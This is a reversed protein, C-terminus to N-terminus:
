PDLQSDSCGYADVLEGAPTHPCVDVLDPVGDDDADGGREYYWIPEFDHHAESVTYFGLNDAHWAIAEGQPESHLTILCPDDLFADALATGPARYWINAYDSGGDNRAIIWRGDPSLDAATIWSLGTGTPLTVVYEMTNVSATSQPYPARYVKNPYIRKTIIYIDRNTDVFLAETDKQSPAQAGSPYQLTIIDVDSLTTSVPAQNPDVFPEPARKVVITTRVSNNDGIDGFYIYTTGPIPGPGVAIDETDRVSGSGFAYTGLLTGDVNIAYVVNGGGSDNHTWLVGPNRRSAALGSAEIVDSALLYGAETGPLFPDSGAQCSGHDCTEAGNCFDGDDCDEDGLCTVCADSDEDCSQGPCPDSGAQCSGGVCTEAGNCFDGDDCDDDGLCTVCTDSDEDCSQGPCPDSGAQCSGSVCTEAGNCFDGDDCDSDASCKLAGEGGGISPSTDSAPRVNINVDDSASLSGDTVTLKFVLLVPAGTIDPAPFTVVADNVASLVVPVGATQSWEFLLENGSFGYSQSGDLTVTEGAIVDADHGAIAVPTALPPTAVTTIRVTATDRAAFAGNDVTLTFELTTDADVDPATFSAVSTDVNDMTVRPGASSQTWVYTLPGAAPDYSASGDLVVEEGEIAVLDDGADAVPPQRRDAPSDDVAAPQISADGGAQAQDSGDPFSDDSGAAPTLPPASGCGSIPWWLLISITTLTGLVSLARARYM